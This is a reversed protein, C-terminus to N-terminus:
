NPCNSILGKFMSGPSTEFGPLLLLHNRANFTVDSLSGVKKDYIIKSSSNAEFFPVD